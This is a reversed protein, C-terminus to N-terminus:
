RPGNLPTSPSKQEKRFQRPLKDLRARRADKGPQPGAGHNARLEFDAVQALTVVFAADFRQAAHVEGDIGPLVDGYAAGAATSFGRKQLQKAAEIYCGAALNMKLARDKSCGDVKILVSSVPDAEDKLREIQQGSKAGYLINL